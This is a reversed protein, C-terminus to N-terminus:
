TIKTGVWVCLAPQMNEFQVLFHNTFQLTISEFKLNGPQTGLQLWVKERESLQGFLADKTCEWYEQDETITAAHPPITPTNSHTQGKDSDLHPCVFAPQPKENNYRLTSAAADIGDFVLNRITPAM